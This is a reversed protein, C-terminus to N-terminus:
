FVVKTELLGDGSVRGALVECFRVADEQIRPGGDGLRFTGGAPGTLVLEVPQGHRSAWDAVVDAVIRGDHEATLEIPRDTARCVDVRHMWVDRTYVVDMLMGLSFSGSIPPDAPIRIARLPAPLRRRSARFRPQAAELRELLEATTLHSRESIQVDNVGDIMPRGLRKAVGRGVRWQHAMERMSAGEAAGLVHLAMARVDWDPCVTAAGWEDDGLSRLLELFRRDEVEAIASANSRDIRPIANGDTTTMM